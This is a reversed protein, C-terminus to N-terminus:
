SVFLPGKQSPTGGVQCGRKPPAKKSAQGKRFDMRSAFMTRSGRHNQANALDKSAIEENPGTCRSAAM